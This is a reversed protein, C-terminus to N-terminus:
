RRDHNAFGQRVGAEVLVVVLPVLAWLWTVPLIELPEELGWIASSAGNVLAGLPGSVAWALLAGLVAARTPWIIRLRAFLPASVFAVLFFTFVIVTLFLAYVAYGALLIAAPILLTLGAAMGLTVLPRDDDVRASSKWVSEGNNARTLSM